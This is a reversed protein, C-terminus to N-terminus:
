PRAEAIRTEALGRVIAAAENLAAVHAAPPHRDSGRYLEAARDTLARAADFLEEAAIIPRVAAVVARSEGEFAATALRSTTSYANPRAALAEAAAQEADVPNPM